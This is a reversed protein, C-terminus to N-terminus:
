AKRAKLTKTIILIYSILVFLASGFMTVSERDELGIGIFGSSGHIPTAYIWLIMLPLAIVAFKRWSRYTSDRTFYLSLIPIFISVAFSLFGYFYEEGYMESCYVRTGATTFYKCMGIEEGVFGIFAFIGIIVLSLVLLINVEKKNKM